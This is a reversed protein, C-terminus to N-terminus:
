KRPRAKAPAPRRPATGTSGPRRRGRTAAAPRASPGSTAPRPRPRASGPGAAARGTSRSPKKAATRGGAPPAARGSTRASGTGSPSRRGSGTGPTVSSPPTVTAGGLGGPATGKATVKRDRTARRRGDVAPGPPVRGRLRRVMLQEAWEEVKKAEAEDLETVLTQVGDPARGGSFAVVSAVVRRWNLDQLLEGFAAMLTADVLDAGRAHIGVEFRVLKGRELFDFTLLGALPHGELTACVIRGPTIDEIRLALSGRMPLIVEFVMGKKLNGIPGGDQRTEFPMARSVNRRFVDRLAAARHFSGAIDAWYRKHVLPGVGESPLQEPIAGQLRRLGDRLPTPEVGLVATLANERAPAIVVEEQLMTLRAQSLPLKFGLLTAVHVTMSAISAPVGVRRPKRGALAELRDLLENMTSVDPGAIELIRGAVDADVARAIAQGADEYWIPQFRQDGGDIVPIAPLTRVMNLVVSLNTDGPGYVAAPRVIVWPRSCGRVGQEARLKSRHYDSTGTDAGLSSVYVLRGVKARQAEAVVHRTGLVNVKEYTAAPPTEEEIGAVHVIADCGAAAGRMSAASAVDGERAEVGRPWRAADKGAHRTFLRVEHGRELLAAIVGEGVVGSGGTVLVKM